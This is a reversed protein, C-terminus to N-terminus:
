RWASSPHSRSYFESSPIGPRQTVWFDKPSPDPRGQNNTGRPRGGEEETKPPKRSNRPLKRRATSCSEVEYKSHTAHYSGVELIKNDTDLWEFSSFDTGPSDNRLAQLMKESLEVVWVKRDTDYCYIGYKTMLYSMKPNIQEFTRPTGCKHLMMTQVIDRRFGRSMFYILVYAESPSWKTM